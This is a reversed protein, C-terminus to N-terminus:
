KFLITEARSIRDEPLQSQRKYIILIYNWDNSESPRNIVYKITKKKNSMRLLETKHKNPIICYGERLLKGKLSFAQEETIIKKEKSYERTKFINDHM